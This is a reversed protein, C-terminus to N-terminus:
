DSGAWRLRLSPDMRPRRASRGPRDAIGDRHGVAIAGIIETDPEIGLEARLAEEGNAVAFFLAGLGHSELALLFTMVAFSADITWYPAPWADRGAGLGTAAKDPEGYRALYADPEACAVFLMPVRLLGPWAFSARRERPLTCDWFRAVHSGSLGVLHWGQTKGASPARSALDLCEDIIGVGVPASGFSRTMTRGRVLRAFESPAGDAAPRLFVEGVERPERGDDM